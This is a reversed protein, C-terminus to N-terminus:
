RSISYDGARFLVERRDCGRVTVSLLRDEDFHFTVDPHKEDFWERVISVSMKCFRLPAVPELKLTEGQLNRLWFLPVEGASTMQQNSLGVIYRGSDSVALHDAFADVAFLTRDGQRCTLSKSKDVSSVVGGTSRGHLYERFEAPSLTEFYAHAEASSLTRDGQKYSIHCDVTQHCTLPGATLTNQWSVCALSDALAPSFPQCLFVASVVTLLKTRALLM